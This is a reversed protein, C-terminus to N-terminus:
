YNQFCIVVGFVLNHILIREALLEYLCNETLIKLFKYVFCGSPDFYVETETGKKDSLILEYSKIFEKKSSYWLHELKAYTTLLKHQFDWREFREKSTPQLSYASHAYKGDGARLLYATVNERDYVGIIDSVGKIIRRKDHIYTKLENLLNLSLNGYKCIKQYIKQLVNDKPFIKKELQL